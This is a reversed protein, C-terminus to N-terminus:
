VYAKALGGVGEHGERNEEAKRGKYTVLIRFKM